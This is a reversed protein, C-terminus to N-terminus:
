LVKNANPQSEVMSVCCNAFKPTGTKGLMTSPLQAAWTIEEKILWMLMQVM